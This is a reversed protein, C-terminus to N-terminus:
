YLLWNNRTRTVETQREPWDLRSSPRRNEKTSIPPQSKARPPKRVVVPKDDHSSDLHEPELRPTRRRHRRKPVPNVPEGDSSTTDAPGNDTATDESPGSTNPTVTVSGAGAENVGNEIVATPPAADVVAAEGHGVETERDESPQKPGPNSLMQKVESSAAPPLSLPAIKNRTLRPTSWGSSDSNSDWGEWFWSKHSHEMVRRTLRYKLSDEYCKSFTEWKPDRFKKMYETRIKKTVMTRTIAETQNLDGCKM